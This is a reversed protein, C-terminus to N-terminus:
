GVRRARRTTTGFPVESAGRANNRFKVRADVCFIRGTENQTADFVVRYWGAPCAFRACLPGRIKSVAFWRSFARYYVRVSVTPRTEADIVRTDESLTGTLTV